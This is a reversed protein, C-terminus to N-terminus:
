HSHKYTEKKILGIQSYEILKIINYVDIVIMIGLESGALAGTRQMSRIVYCVSYQM